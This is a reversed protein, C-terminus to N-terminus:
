KKLFQFNCTILFLEAYKGDNEDSSVLRVKIWKGFLTQGEVIVNAQGSGNSNTQCKFGAAYDNNGLKFSWPMLYSEQGSETVIQKAYLSHQKIKEVISLFNKNVGSKQNFILELVPKCQVGYYNLFSTNNIKYHIYPIGKNFSVLQIGMEESKMVGYSEPTYHPFEYLIPEETGGVCVTENAEINVELLNNVWNTNGFKNLEFVTLLYQNRKPDVIGHFYKEKSPAKGSNFLNVHSIKSQLWGMLGVPTFPIASEYNHRILAANKSDLYWIVGNGVAITNHDTCGYNNGIKTRPQGFKNSAPIAYIQGTKEDSRFESQNYLLTFYDNICIVVIINQDTVVGTIEHYVQEDFSTKNDPTFWHLYNTLGESSIGMSVSLETKNRHKQEYRNKVSIRGRGFCKNGFFDSPSHHSLIFTRKSGNPTPTSVPITEIKTAVVTGNPDYQNVPVDQVTIVSEYYPISRSVKFTNSYDIFGTTVEPEGNVIKIYNCIQFYKETTNEIRPRLFRIKAGVLNNIIGSMSDDYEITIYQDGIKYSALKTINIVDGSGTEFLQVLDGKIFQWNTNTQSYATYNTQSYIYLRVRKKSALPINNQSINGNNDELISYDVIWELWDSYTLNDTIYFSIYNFNSPISALGTIDFSIKNIKNTNDINLYNNDPAQIFTEMGICDELIIGYGYRGQLISNTDNYFSLSKLYVTGIDVTKDISACLPVSINYEDFIPSCSDDVRVRICGGVQNSFILLDTRPFLPNVGNAIIEFKGLSDTIAHKGNQYVVVISGLGFGTDIDQVVGKIKFQVKNQYLLEASLKYENGNNDTWDTNQTVVTCYVDTINFRFVNGGLLGGLTTGFYHGNADTKKSYYITSSTNTEVNVVEHELGVKYGTITDTNLVYGELANAYNGTVNNTVHKSLDWIMVPTQYLDINSNAEVHLEYQETILIGPNNISTIGIMNASKTRYNEQGNVIGKDLGVNPATVRFVYKGKPLYFEWKQIYKPSDTRYSMPGVEVQNSSNSIDMQKAICYIDAHGVAYMIFNNVGTFYQNYFYPNDKVGNYDGNNKGAEGYGIKDSPGSGDHDFYRINTLKSEIPNYIYGYITIKVYGSPNCTEDTTVVNCKIAERQKCSLPPLGNEPNGIGIKNGIRFVSKAKNPIVLSNLDTESKPLMVTEKNGYFRVTIKNTGPNYSVPNDDSIPQYYKQKFDRLWFEPIYNGNLDCDSYKDIIDCRVWDSEMETNGVGCIRYELWITAISKCGADLLIDLSRPMKSDDTSCSNNLSNYYQKSIVGHVSERGWVDIYKLRFQWVKFSIYNQKQKEVETDPRPIPNIQICGVPKGPYGLTIMDCISCCTNGQSFFSHSLGNTAICDEVPIQKIRSNDDTIIIWTKTLPYQSNKHYQEYTVYTFRVESIFNNQDLKFGLCSNEIVLTATQNKADLEWISHNNNSNWICSYYKSTEKVYGGGISYNTGTPLQIDAFKTVSPNKTLKSDNAMESLNGDSDSTPNNSLFQNWGKIFRAQDEPMFSEDTSLNMGKIPYISQSEM